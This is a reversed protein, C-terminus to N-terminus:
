VLKTVGHPPHVSCRAAPTRLKHTKICLLCFKHSCPLKACLSFEGFCISCVEKEENMAM